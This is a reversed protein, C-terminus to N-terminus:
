RRRLLPTALWLLIASTPEPVGPIFLYPSQFNSGGLELRQRPDGPETSWYLGDLECYYFDYRTPAVWVELRLRGTDGEAIYYNGNQITVGAVGCLRSTVQPSSGPHASLVALDFVHTAGATSLYVNDDVATVNVQLTFTGTWHPLTPWGDSEIHTGSTWMTVTPTASASTSMLGLCLAVLLFMGYGRM